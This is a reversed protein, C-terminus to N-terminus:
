LLEASIGKGNIVNLFVPLYMLSMANRQARVPLVIREEGPHCLRWWSVGDYQSGVGFAEHLYFPM